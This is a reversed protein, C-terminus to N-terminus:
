VIPRAAFCPCGVCDGDRWLHGADAERQLWPPADRLLGRASSAWACLWVSVRTHSGDNEVRFAEDSAILHRCVRTM